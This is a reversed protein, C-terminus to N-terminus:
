VFRLSVVEQQLVTGRFAGKFIVEHRDRFDKHGTFFMGMINTFTGNDAFHRSYGDTDGQNWTTVEDALIKRIAADDAPTQALAVSAALLLPAVITARKM